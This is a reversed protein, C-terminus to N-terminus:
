VERLHKGHRATDDIIPVSSAESPPPPRSRSWRRHLPLWRSEATLYPEFLEEQHVRRHRCGGQGPSRISWECTCAGEGVWHHSMLAFSKVNFRRGLARSHTSTTAKACLTSPPFCHETPQCGIFLNVRKAMTSNGARAMFGIFRICSCRILRSSVRSRKSDYGCTTLPSPRSSVARIERHQSICTPHSM